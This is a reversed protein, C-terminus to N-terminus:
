TSCRRQVYDAGKGMRYSGRHYQPRGAPQVEAYGKEVPICPPLLARFLRKKLTPGTEAWLREQSQPTDSWDKLRHPNVKQSHCPYHVTATQYGDYRRRPSPPGFVSAGGPLDGLQPTTM